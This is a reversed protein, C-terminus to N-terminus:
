AGSEDPAKDESLRSCRAPDLDLYVEEGIKFENEAGRPRESIVQTGNWSVVYRVTSGLFTALEIRGPATRHLATPSRSLGTDEARVHFGPINTALRAAAQAPIRNATGLFEMIFSTRPARYLEQPTGMQLIEGAHMVAIRDAVTFAERQDHTVLVTSIQLRRLLLTLELQMSERLNKDLASFAEDLLLLKPRVALARAVAVRQQQGGSLESPFRRELGDLKLMTVLEAVRAAIAPKPLKRSKLGYAINDFVRLHPFLAYHQFVKSTERLNPPVDDAVRGDIVITGSDQHHFGAILALLTSKGCGSPGLLALIEGRRMSLSCDRVAAINGFSKSVRRLELASGGANM